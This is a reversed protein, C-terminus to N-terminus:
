FGNVKNLYAVIDDGEKINLVFSLKNLVKDRAEQSLFKMSINGNVLVRVTLYDSWAKLSFYGKFLGKSVGKNIKLSDFLWKYYNDDFMNVGFLNGILKIYQYTQENNWVQLTFVKDWVLVPEIPDSWSFKEGKLYSIVQLIWQNFRELKKLKDNILSNDCIRKFTKPNFEKENYNSLRINNMIGNYVWDYVDEYVGLDKGIVRKYLLPILREFIPKYIDELQKQLEKGDIKSFKDLKNFYEGSMLEWVGVQSKDIHKVLHFIISLPKINIDQTLDTKIKQKSKSPLSAM